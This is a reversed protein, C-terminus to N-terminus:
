NIELQIEGGRWVGSQTAFTCLGSRNYSAYSIGDQGNVVHYTAGEGDRPPMTPREFQAAAAAPRSSPSTLTHFYLRAVRARLCIACLTPISLLLTERRERRM